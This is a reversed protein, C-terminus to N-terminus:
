ANNKSGDLNICGLSMFKQHVDYVDTGTLKKIYSVFIQAPFSLIINYIVKIIYSLIVIKLIGKMPVFQLEM